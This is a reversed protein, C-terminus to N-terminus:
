HMNTVLMLMETHIKSTQKRTSKGYFGVDAKKTVLTELINNNLMKHLGGGANRLANWLMIVSRSAAM